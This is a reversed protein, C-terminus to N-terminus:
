SQDEQDNSQTVRPSGSAKITVTGGPDTPVGTHPDQSVRVVPDDMTKRVNRVFYELENLPVAGRFRMQASLEVDASM